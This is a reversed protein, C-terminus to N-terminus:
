FVSIVGIDLKHRKKSFSSIDTDKAKKIGM